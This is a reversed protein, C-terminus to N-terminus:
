RNQAAYFNMLCGRLLLEREEPTAAPLRLTLHRTGGGEHVVTAPFTEDGNEVKERVGPVFIFDGPACPFAQGEELFPMFTEYDKGFLAFEVSGGYDEVAFKVWPRGSKKSVMKSVSTILGALYLERKQLSADTSAAKVMDVAEVLSTQAFHEMEFKYIDLPHASLYMGVLEKEKKRTWAKVEETDMLFTANVPAAPTKKILPKLAETAKELLEAPADPSKGDVNVHLSYSNEKEGENKYFSAHKTEKLVTRAPHDSDRKQVPEFAVYDTGKWKLLRGEIKEDPKVSPRQSYSQELKEM